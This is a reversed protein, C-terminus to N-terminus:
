KNQHPLSIHKIPNSHSYQGPLGNPTLDDGVEIVTGVAAYGYQLPFALSGGLAAINEDAAMETPAHGRYILLETGPSIASFRTEVLMEGPNLPPLTKEQIEIQYPNTFFLSQRKMEHRQQDLDPLGM